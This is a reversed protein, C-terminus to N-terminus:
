DSPSPRECSGTMQIYLAENSSRVERRYKRIAVRPTPYRRGEPPRKPLEARDHRGRKGPLFPVHDARCVARLASRATFLGSPLGGGPMVWQGVMLFHGLGPLANRLPQFRAGPTLEKGATAAANKCPM